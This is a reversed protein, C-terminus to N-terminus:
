GTTQILFLFIELLEMQNVVIGASTFKLFGAILMCIVLAGSMGANLGTQPDLWKDGIVWCEKPDLEFQKIMEREFRSSPKRYGGTEGPSEPAICVKLFFDESWGFDDHMRQNCAHVDSWKYYGRAIGSQNTHMFLYYGAASARILSDGVGHIIELKAPDKLYHADKILTGDRDM